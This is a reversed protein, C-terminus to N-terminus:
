LPLAVLLLGAGASCASFFCVVELGVDTRAANCCSIVPIDLLVIPSVGMRCPWSKVFLLGTPGVFADDPLLEIWPGIWVQLALRRKRWKISVVVVLSLPNKSPVVVIAVCMTGKWVISPRGNVCKPFLACPFHSAVWMWGHGDNLGLVGCLACRMEKCCFWGAIIKTSDDQM